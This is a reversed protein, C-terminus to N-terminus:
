RALIKSIATAIMKGDAITNNNGFSIRLTGEAYKRPVKIAKIVHSLKTNKSDCAAGVAIYIGKLDLRHLLIESNSNKISINVIGPIRQEKDGNIIYEIGLKDLEHYFCDSILTLHKTNEKLGKICNKLAVAMGVINAVNETGARMKKEQSGGDLYSLIKTGKHVYLFGVGKPGYFKHASASLLDVGLDNVNVDVHGVAQVADTHFYAGYKHAIEVFNNIPQITGIENNALMITVLQTSNNITDKLINLDVFGNKTVPLYTVAGGLRELTNCAKLVAHHEFMSTIIEGQKGENNLKNYLSVGKIAWNDSETGGSTFFIEDTTANICDAIIERAIAIAKRGERSFSYQASPNGYNNRLWPIMAEFAEDDLKTTAANDAYIVIKEKM